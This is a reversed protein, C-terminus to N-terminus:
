KFSVPDYSNAQYPNSRMFKEFNSYNQGNAKIWTSFKSSNENAGFLWQNYADFFGNKTLKLQYSLLSHKTTHAYHLSWDLLIRTRLMILSETNIGSTIAAVNKDILYPYVEVFVNSKPAEQQSGFTPLKETGAKQFYAIYAKYLNSKAEATRQTNNELNIFIEYYIITWLPTSKELEKALFFYNGSFNPDAQIGAEYSQIAQKGKKEISFINGRNQYLLAANPYKKIGTNLISKAKNNNGLKSEIAAAIQYTQEDAFDTKLVESIITKGEELTGNMYHAYALDRRLSVDNPELKIAQNFLLIANPFNGREIDNQANQQMKIAEPNSIQAFSTTASAFMFCLLQLYKM